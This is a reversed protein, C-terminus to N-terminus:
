QDLGAMEALHHTPLWWIPGGDTPRIQSLDPGVCVHIEPDALASEWEDDSLDEYFVVRTSM